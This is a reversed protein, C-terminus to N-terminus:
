INFTLNPKAKKVKIDSSIEPEDGLVLKKVAKICSRLSLNPKESEESEESEKKSEKEKPILELMSSPWNYRNEEVLIKFSSPHTYNSKNDIIIKKITLISNKLQAMENSFYYAYSDGTSIKNKVRVKDGPKANLFESQFIPSVAGEYVYTAPKKSRIEKGNEDYTYNQGHHAGGEIEITYGYPDNFNNFNASFYYGAIKGLKDEYIITDGIKFRFKSKDLKM